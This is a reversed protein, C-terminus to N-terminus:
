GARSWLEACAEQARPGQHSPPRWGGSKRLSVGRHGVMSSDICVSGLVAGLGSWPQSGRYDAGSVVWEQDGGAHAVVTIQKSNNNHIKLSSM